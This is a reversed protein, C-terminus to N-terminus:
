TGGWAFFRAGSYDDPAGPFDCLAGPNDSHAGPNEAFAGAVRGLRAGIKPGLLFWALPRSLPMELYPHFWEGDVISTPATMM